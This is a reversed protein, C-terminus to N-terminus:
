SSLDEIIPNGDNVKIAKWVRQPSNEYFIFYGDKSVQSGSIDELSSYILNSSSFTIWFCLILWFKMEM